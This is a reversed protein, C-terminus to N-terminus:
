RATHRLCLRAACPTNAAHRSTRGARRERRWYGRGGYFLIFIRAIQALLRAAEHRTQVSDPWILPSNVHFRVFQSLFKECIKFTQIMFDHRTRRNDRSVVRRQQERIRAHILKLFHKLAVFHAAVLARRADLLADTRAALVVVEIFDAFIATM